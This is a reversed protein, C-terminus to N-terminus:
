KIICYYNIYNISFGPLPLTKFSKNGINLSDYNRFILQNISFTNNNIRNWDIPTNFPMDITDGHVTISFTSPNSFQQLQFPFNNVNYVYSEYCKYTFPTVTCNGVADIKWIDYIRKYGMSTDVLLYNSNNWLYDAVVTFTTNFLQLKTSDTLSLSNNTHNLPVSIPEVTEKKCSILITSVIFLLTLIKKM